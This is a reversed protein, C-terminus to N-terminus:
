MSTRCSWCWRRVTRGARTQSGGFFSTAHEMYPIPPTVLRLHHRLLRRLPRLPPAPRPEHPGSV